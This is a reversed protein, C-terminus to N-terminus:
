LERGRNQPVEELDRTIRDSEGLGLGLVLGLLSPDHVAGFGGPRNSALYISLGDPSRIPCGDLSPTNLESSNGNITDIKQAASWTAFSTGHAVSVIAACVAAAFGLAAVSM